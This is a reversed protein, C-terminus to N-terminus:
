EPWLNKFRGDIIKMEGEGEREEIPEFVIEGSEGARNFVLHRFFGKGPGEYIFFTLAEKRTPDECPLPIGKIYEPLNDPIKDVPKVTLWIESILVMAELKKANHQEKLMKWVTQLAGPLANHAHDSEFFSAVSVPVIQRGADTEFILFCIPAVIRDTLLVSKSAEILENYIEELM